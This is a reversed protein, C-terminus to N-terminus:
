STTTTAWTLTLRPYAPSTTPRRRQAGPTWTLTVSGTATDAASATGSPATLMHTHDDAPDQPYMVEVWDSNGAENKARVRYALTEGAMYQRPDTFLTLSARWSVSDTTPATWEGDDIKREIDYGTVDPGESPKNWRLDVGRRLEGTRNTAQESTLGEPENPPAAEGTSFSVVEAAELATTQAGDSNDALPRLADTPDLGVRNVAIIRAYYNADEELTATDALEWTEMADADTTTLIPDTATTWDTSESINDGDDQTYQLRYEVIPQGGTEDGTLATWTAEITNLDPATVMLGAVKGPAESATTGGSIAGSALGGIAFARYTRTADDSLGDDTYRRTQDCAGFITGRTNNILPKWNIGGDDSADIRYPPTNTVGTPLTVCLAIENDRAAGGDTM